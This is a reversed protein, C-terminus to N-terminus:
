PGTATGATPSCDTQNLVAAQARRSNTSLTKRKIATAIAKVRMRAVLTFGLKAACRIMVASEQRIITLLPNAKTNWNATIVVMHGGEAQFSVPDAGSEQGWNKLDTSDFWAGPCLFTPVGMSASVGVMGASLFGGPPSIWRGPASWIESPPPVRISSTSTQISRHPYGGSSASQFATSPSTGICPTSRFGTPPSM